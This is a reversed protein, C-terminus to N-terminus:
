PLALFANFYDLFLDDYALLDELNEGTIELANLDTEKTKKSVWDAPSPASFRVYSRRVGGAPASRLSMLHSKTTTLHSTTMERFRGPLQFLPDMIEDRGGPSSPELTAPDTHGRPRGYRETGGIVNGGDADDYSSYDAFTQTQTFYDYLFMQQSNSDLQSFDM